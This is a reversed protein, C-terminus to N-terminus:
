GPRGMKTAKWGRQPGRPKEGGRGRRVFNSSSCDCRRSGGAFSVPTPCTQHLHFGGGRRAVLRRGRVGTRERRLAASPPLARGGTGPALLARSPPSGASPGPRHRGRRMVGPSGKRWALRTGGRVSGGAAARTGLTVGGARSLADGRERAVAAGRRLAPAPPRPGLLRHSLGPLFDM